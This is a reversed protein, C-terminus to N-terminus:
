RRAQAGRYLDPEIPYWYLGKNVSEAADSWAKSNLTASRIEGHAINLFDAHPETPPHDAMWTRLWPKLLRDAQAADLRAFPLSFQKKAEAELWDLGGRYLQKREEASSGIFVDLFAPTEAALAGPKDGLPPMLLDSLRTLTAMQAASFFRPVAQAVADAVETSPVPTAANLGLTWPVPAPPPPAPNAQQGPLLKTAAATTVAVRIFERRRM